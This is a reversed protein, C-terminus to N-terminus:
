RLLRGSVESIVLGTLIKPYFYTSKHPMLKGSNTVEKLILPSVSPFLIGFGGKQELEKQLKQPDSFFQVMGLEKLHEETLDFSKKLIQLFSYLPLRSLHPEAESITEYINPKIRTVHAENPTLIIFTDGMDNYNDLIDNLFYSNVKEIIETYIKIKRLFNPLETFLYLRHTPLMLLNPDNIPTLYMAMYDYDRINNNGFISKMYDRYKLATNYRHHGDAIYIKKDSLFTTIKTIINDDQIKYLKHLEDNFLIEFYLNTSNNILNLTYLSPDEYLGHIQSFQFKTTKLLELREETVKKFTHEHPIIINDEYNYLKVLLIFGKRLYSKNRYNFYLEHYYITPLSNRILIEEELFKELLNKAKDLTEPLELHFVNYPSKKKYFQIEKEDVIDYPPAVVDEVNVKERNYLYGCFPLTDPM